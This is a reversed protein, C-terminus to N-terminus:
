LCTLHSEDICMKTNQHRPLYHITVPTVWLTVYGRTKNKTYQCGTYCHLTAIHWTEPAQASSSHYSTYSVTYRLSTHQRPHRPLYRTIVPIVWLTVHLWVVDRTESTLPLHHTIVPIVWLTAYRRTKNRTDSCILLSLQYLECHLTAVPRTEPTQASLSHYSTYSVTYRLSTDQKQHRPLYPAIVPIVWLTVHLMAVDKAEFTQPSLSHYGTYRM